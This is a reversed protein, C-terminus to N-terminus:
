AEAPKEPHGKYEMCLMTMDDFQEANQVFGDVSTQVNQIIRMPEAGPDDNLANLMRQIGYMENNENVAEPIGDTYLFLKDGPDMQIEYDVYKMGKMGGIVFGHKDKLLSFKGNKMLVPYEHGANAATIRGTSIEMIGTWVTVFMDEQNSSCIAQNAVKLIEAAGQGLMATNKLIVKSVMMFLAAPVGKGSVDAMVMCLHDEDILFFDYFDGGVERAPDMSAYINFEKRDPFPPFASPLMSNQIRNAMHLETSVREKERTIKTIDAIYNQTEKSLHSFAEALVEIEDNTRYVDKMVFPQNTKSARNVDRTIQGIPKAINRASVLAAYSGLLVMVLVFLISTLMTRITGSRFEATAQNNIEDYEELLQKGPAETLEKEIASVVAWGVTPMPAGALYYEKDELTVETLETASNMAEKIFSGFVKNESERLDKAKDASESAFLGDDNSLIIQGDNNVIFIYGTDASRIFDSMNELVIDVGAVGVVEGEVTVPVSCTILLEDNFADKEIGTFYLGGSEVAGRYWPRQRVPFPILNGNEDYKDATSTDIGFHTGDALGIYCGNIKKSNNVLAMMPMQMHAIVGLYESKTYDVGEECLVMASVTGDLAPDPISYEVPELSDRNEFLGEAMSQLMYVNNVVESFESDAISAQLRTMKVFSEELTRSMTEESIRSISAQQEDRTDAVLDTLMKSQYAFVLSFLVITLFLVMM